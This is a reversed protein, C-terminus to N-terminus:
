DVPPAVPDSAKKHGIFRSDAKVIVLTVIAAAFGFAALSYLGSAFGNSTQRAWGLIYPGAFGGLNGLSNILAIGGAAASGTLFLPPLPWFPAKASYVGIAAVTILALSAYNDGGMIAAGAFGAASLTLASVLCIRREKFRDSLYGLGLIAITGFVYPISTAWGTQALSLGLGKVIQPLFFALGLNTTTNAFYIFALGLVRPDIFITWLSAGHMGTVAKAEKALADALWDKERPTLWGAEKPRDPLCTLVVFALIVSPLGELIFLWQWGRLQAIGDM